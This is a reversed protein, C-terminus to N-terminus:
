KRRRMTALAALGFAAFLASSPEPVVTFSSGGTGTNGMGDIQQSALMTGGGNIGDWYSVNIGDMREQCCGDQRNWFTIDTIDQASPFTITYFQSPPTVNTNAHWGNACCGAGVVDDIGGNLSSSFAPSGSATATTGFATSAIDVAGTNRVDLEEIYFWDARTNTFTISHVGALTAAQSLNASVLLTFTLLLAKLKM